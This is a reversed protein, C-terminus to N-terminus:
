GPIAAPFLGGNTSFLGAREDVTHRCLFGAASAGPDAARQVSGCLFRVREPAAECSRLFGSDHTKITRSRTEWCFTRAEFGSFDRQPFGSKQDRVDMGEARPKQHQANADIV